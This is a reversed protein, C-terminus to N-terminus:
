QAGSKSQEVLQKVLTKLEALDAELRHIRADKEQALQHLGQIAALAVGDFELTTIGTDDRGPYFASKFDQALPGIHPTGRDDEWKYNWASIPMAALKRVVAVGDVPVFNKKANRDSLVTWSTAGPALQVGATPNGAGDVASVIRTGGLARINFQNSATSAFDAATSDAWVFAGTHRAKARLGAAFALNTAANGYGGPIMGYDGDPLITNQNGGGITSYTANPQITNDYGGGITSFSVDTQIINYYGGGITAYYANTRITNQRGGGITSYSANPQIINAYGGGITSYGGNEQITNLTGGGISGFNAAVSNPFELGAYNAAGGGAITAGLVGPAVFNVVAGGILNPAGAANPELRLARQSNVKFELPQNDTTSFMLPAGSGAFGTATVVGNVDLATAPNNKGIGM